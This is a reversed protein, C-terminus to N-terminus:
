TMPLDPTAFLSKGGCVFLTQGTVYWAEDSAFYLVAWAIEEPQGLRGMPQAKMLREMIDPPNQGRGMATEVMGPCVANATINYKALELALTRTLSVVGGKSAAYNAQTYWGLWARSSINVIRGHQQARMYGAAAQACVFVGKLNVDLVADWEENSLKMLGRNKGIGANNVLIDIRGFRDVTRGMMASVAERDSVGGAAALADHGAERIEQAVRECRDEFLDNVVVRAGHSALRKAIAEGIGAGAGTILAVRDKVVM